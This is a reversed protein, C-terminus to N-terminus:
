CRCPSKRCTGCVTAVARGVRRRHSGLHLQHHVRQSLRDFGRLRRVSRRLAKTNAVNMRRRKRRQSYTLVRALEDLGIGLTTAILAPTLYKALKKFLAVVYPVTPLHTLGLAEAIKFLIPPIGAAQLTISKSAILTPMNGPQAFTIMGTGPPGAQPAGFSYAPGYTVPVAAGPVSFGGVYSNGVSSDFLNSIDSVATDFVSSVSDFIGM